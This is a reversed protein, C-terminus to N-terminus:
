SYDCFYVSLLQMVMAVYFIVLIQWGLPLTAQSLKIRQVATVHLICAPSGKCLDPKALALLM